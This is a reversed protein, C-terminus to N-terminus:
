IGAIITAIWKIEFITNAQVAFMGDTKFRNFQGHYSQFRDHALDVKILVYFVLALFVMQAGIGLMSGTVPQNRYVM